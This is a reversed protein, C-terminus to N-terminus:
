LSAAPQRGNLTVTQSRSFRAERNSTGFQSRLSEARAAMGLGKLNAKIAKELNVSEAVQGNESVVQTLKERVGAGAALGM